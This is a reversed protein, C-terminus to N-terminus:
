IIGALKNLIDTNKLIMLYNDKEPMFIISLM